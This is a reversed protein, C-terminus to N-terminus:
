VRDDFARCVTKFNREVQLGGGLETEGGVLRDREIRDKRRQTKIRSGGRRHRPDRGLILEKVGVFVQHRVVGGARSFDRRRRDLLHLAGRGVAPRRRTHLAQVFNRDPPLFDGVADVALRRARIRLFEAAVTKAEGETDVAWGVIAAQEAEGRREDRRFHFLRA